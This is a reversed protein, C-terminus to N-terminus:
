HKPASESQLVAQLDRLHVQVFRITHRERALTVAIELGSADLLAQRIQAPSSGNAHKYKAACIPCLALHNERHERQADKWCEVAEFYYSGDDLKFPMENGCAECVMQGDDNTYFERLYTKAEQQIEDSTRISRTRDDWQKQRAQKAEAAVKARRLEPNPSHKVPFEAPPEQARWKKFAALEEPNDKFHQLVEIAVGSQRALADLADSKMGLGSALEEDRDFEDPLDALSVEAPKCLGGAAPLWAFARLRKTVTAEFSASRERYYFWRYHGRFFSYRSSDQLHLRLFNWLVLAMRKTDSGKDDSESFRALFPELGDVDYDIDEQESTCGSNGRLARKEDWSLMNRLEVRRPKTEVGIGLWDAETGVQHSAGALFWAESNAAFYTELEPTRLYARDPEVLTTEGTAANRARVFAARKLRGLLRERKAQSDTKLASFIKHLDAAHQEDSVSHASGGEYRKLVREIVEDVIDPESLGLSSLFQWARKDEAITRKVIPYDTQDSPPLYANPSGDDQFPAVHGGGELRVFPKDRLPEGKEWVDRKILFGYFEAVWEDPQAEIFPADFRRAFSDATVEGVSLQKALYARLDGTIEESLWKWDSGGGFLQQLQNQSLLDRLEASEALKAQKAAVFGGGHAPLLAQEILADRVHDFIPRFMADDPPRIPMAELARVSLLGGNRLIALTDAVLAATEAILAQNWKGDAGSIHINDRAPTPVYPGQIQFGLGTTIKTPFFV